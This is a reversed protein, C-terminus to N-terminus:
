EQGGKLRIASFTGGRPNHMPRVDIEGADELTKIAKYATASAMLGAGCLAFRVSAKSHWGPNTRLYELVINMRDADAYYSKSM